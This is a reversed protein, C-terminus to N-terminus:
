MALVAVDPLFLTLVQREIVDLVDHPATTNRAPCGDPEFAAFEDQMWLSIFDHCPKMLVV